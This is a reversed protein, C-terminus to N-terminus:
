IHSLIGTAYILWLVPWSPCEIGRRRAVWRTLATLGAAFVPLGVFSHTIGRHYRIVSMPDNTFVEALVDSDPFVAGLTMAFTALPGYREAVFGKGLLTGVIGHTITDM